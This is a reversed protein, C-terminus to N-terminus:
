IAGSGGGVGGRGRHRAFFAPALEPLWAPDVVSVTRAYTRTTRLLEDFVICRPPPAARRPPHAAGGGGDRDEGVWGGSAAGALVSSPHVTVAQGTAVM